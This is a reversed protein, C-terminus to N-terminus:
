PLYKKFGLPKWDYTARWVMTRAFCHHKLDDSRTPAAGGSSGQELPVAYKTSGVQRPLNEVHFKTCTKRKATTQLVECRCSRRLVVLFSVALGSM